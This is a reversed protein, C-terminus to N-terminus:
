PQIAPDSMNQFARNIAVMSEAVKRACYLTAKADELSNHAQYPYNYNAACATLKQWKWDGHGDDWEHNVFAYDLMVDCVATDPSCIGSAEMFPLDFSCLNYGVLAQASALLEDIEAKRERLPPAQRVSAPSIGNVAEAELLDRVPM